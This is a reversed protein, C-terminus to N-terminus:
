LIRFRLICTKKVVICSSKTLTCFSNENEGYIFKSCFGKWYLQASRSCYPLDGKLIYLRIVDIIFEVGSSLFNDDLYKGRLQEYMDHKIKTFNFMNVEHIRSLADIVTNMSGKRYQISFDFDHILKGM